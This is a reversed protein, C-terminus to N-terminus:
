PPPKSSLRAKLPVLEEHEAGNSMHVRVRAAWRIYRNFGPLSLPLQKPHAFEIENTYVGPETPEAALDDTWLLGTKKERPERGWEAIEECTFAVAVRDIPAQPLTWVTVAHRPRGTSSAVPQVDCQVTGVVGRDRFVMIDHAALIGMLASAIGGVIIMWVIGFVIGAATAGASAAFLSLSLTMAKTSRTAVADPQAPSTPTVQLWDTDRYHVALERSDRAKKKEGEVSVRALIYWKWQLIHGDFNAPADPAPLEFSVEQIGGSAVTGEWILRERGFLNLQRPPGLVATTVLELAIECIGEFADKATIRVSGTILEDLEFTADPNDLTLEVSPLEM